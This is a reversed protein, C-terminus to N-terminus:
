DLWLLRLLDGYMLRYTSLTAQQGQPWGTEAPRYGEPFLRGTPGHGIGEYPADGSATVREEWARPRAAAPEVVRTHAKAHSLDRIPTGVVLGGPLPLSGPRFSHYLRRALIPEDRLPELAGADYRMPRGLLTWGPNSPGEPEWALEWSTTLLDCRSPSDARILSGEGYNAASYLLPAASPQAGSLVALDWWSMGLENLERRFAVIHERRGDGDLDARVVDFDRATGQVASPDDGREDQVPAPWAMVPRGGEVLVFGPTGRQAECSCIRQWGGDLPACAASACGPLQAQHPPPLREAPCVAPADRVPEMAPWPPLSATAAGSRPVRLQQGMLIHHPNRLHNLEALAPWGGPVEYDWAIWELTDGWQVTYMAMPPQQRERRGAGPHCALLSLALLPVLTRM